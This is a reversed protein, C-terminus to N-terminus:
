ITLTSNKGNRRSVGYQHTIIIIFKNKKINNLISILSNSTELDLSATPEDLIIIQKDHYLCRLLSLIFKEGGSIQIGNEGLLSNLSSFKSM